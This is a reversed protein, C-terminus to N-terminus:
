NTPQPTYLPQDPPRRDRGQNRHGGRRPRASDARRQDRRGTQQGQLLGPQDGHPHCGRRRGVPHLKRRGGTSERLQELEHNSFLWRASHEAYAWLALAADLHEVTIVPKGDFLAYLLSLRLVQTVGRATADTARSDPRDRNRERYARDWAEWFSETFKLEQRTRAKNYATNFKTAADALVKAPLNGLRSHLRSRRSLCILLRNVSGGSLDSDELTARFEGPTVHGIIVIHPGTATLKNHKRTLTRLTRCDWADRMTQGLTNGDRRQRVLM